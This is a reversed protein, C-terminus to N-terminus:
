SPLIIRSQAGTEMGRSIEENMRQLLKDFNSQAAVLGQYVPTAQLMGFLQEYEAKIAEAPEQGSHLATAIERELADLRTMATVADRDDTLRQRARSLAKYEDSQGLLRGLELAREKMGETM